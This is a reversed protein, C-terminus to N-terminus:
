SLKHYAYGGKKIYAFLFKGKSEAKQFQEWIPASIADYSYLGGNNFEVFLESTEPKYGIAAINSSVVSEMEPRGTSPIAKPAPKRPKTVVKPATKLVFKKRKEIPTM